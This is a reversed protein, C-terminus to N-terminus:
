PMGVSTAGVVDGQGELDSVTFEIRGTSIVNDIAM